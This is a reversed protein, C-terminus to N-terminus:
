VAKVSRHSKTRKRHENKSGRIMKNVDVFHTDTDILVEVGETGDYVFEDTFGKVYKNNDNVLKGAKQMADFIYKKASAVNDKDRRKNPEHWIFTFYAPTDIRCHMTINLILMIDRETEKKFKAGAYRNHRCKNTYENFSPLRVPIKFSIM